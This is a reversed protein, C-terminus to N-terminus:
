SKTLEGHIGDTELSGGSMDNQKCQRGRDDGEREAIKNTNTNTNTNTVRIRLSEVVVVGVVVIADVVVVM